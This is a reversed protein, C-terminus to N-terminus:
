PKPNLAGFIVIYSSSPFGLMGETPVHVKLSCLLGHVFRVVYSGWLGLGLQPHM